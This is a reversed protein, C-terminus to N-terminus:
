CKRYELPFLKSDQLSASEEIIWHATNSYWLGSFNLISSGISPGQQPRHYPREITASSDASISRRSQPHARHLIFRDVAKLRVAWGTGSLSIPQWPCRAFHRGPVGNSQRCLQWCQEFAQTQKSSDSVKSQWLAPGIYSIYKILLIAMLHKKKKVYLYFCINCWYRSAYLKM